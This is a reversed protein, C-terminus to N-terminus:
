REAERKSAPETAHLTYRALLVLALLSLALGAAAPWLMAGALAGLYWGPDAAVVPWEDAAFRLLEVAGAEAAHRGLALSLVVLAALVAVMGALAAGIRGEHRAMHLRRRMRLGHGDPTPTSVSAFLLDLADRESEDM